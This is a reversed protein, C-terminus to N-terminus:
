NHMKIYSKYWREVPAIIQRFLKNRRRRNYWHGQYFDYMARTAKKNIVLPIRCVNIHGALHKNHFAKSPSCNTGTGDMGINEILSEGPYLSLGNRLLNMAYWKVYWTKLTGKFNSVLQKQLVDGGLKNFENWRHEFMHYLFASDNCYYKWARDWTAWGWSNPIDCLFTEPLKGRHPWMYASIHMVRDEDKYLELGDNMFQLFSPSTVLDDELVIVKGYQNVIETVGDIISDALGKNKEKCILHVNTFLGKKEAEIAFDKALRHMIDIRSRMNDTANAKPGDCYLFLESQSALENKSLAEWVRLSHEPRNYNFVIIPALSM